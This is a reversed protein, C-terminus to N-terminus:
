AYAEVDREITKGFELRAKSLDHMQQLIGEGEFWFSATMRLMKVRMKRTVALIFVFIPVSEMPRVGHENPAFRLATSPGATAKTTAQKRECGLM